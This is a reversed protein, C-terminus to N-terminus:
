VPLGLLWGPALSLGLLLILGAIIVIRYNRGFDTKAVATDEAVPAFYMEIIVRFYYYVSVASNLVAALVLLPYEPFAEAFLFYKGFFGATPPIGALSLMAVAMAAASWGDRRSLGRFIQIGAGENDKSLAMYVGFASITAVAYSLLYVLMVGGVGRESSLIGLLLYGAHAISSYAMLRKFNSQMVATVNGLTMTLLAIVSLTPGWQGIIGSFSGAFLRFFAGFAAIKVVASMFVTVLNPSGEYVDPSWYHFPAAGVKFSLGVLILIVGVYFFAPIMAGKSQIADSIETINFSATAGYVLAIGFLLIGTAFAGMLFYKLAAENSALRDKRAGALAYMPISLIEIGLFMMILSEFSFLCFAGCLSFLILAFYDGYNEESGQYSRDSMLVILLTACISIGSFALAYHDFHIMGAMEFPTGWAWDYYTAGLAAILGAVALAQVVWRKDTRLGFFLALLGTVFVILLAKM